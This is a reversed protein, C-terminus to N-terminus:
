LADEGIVEKLDVIVQFQRQCVTELVKIQVKNKDRCICAEELSGKYEDKRLDERISANEKKLDALLVDYESVRKECEEILKKIKIKM